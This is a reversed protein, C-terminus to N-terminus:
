EALPPNSNVTEPPVLKKLGAIVRSADKVTLWEIHDIGTTHKIFKDLSAMSKSRAREIWMAKIKRLQADTARGRRYKDPSKGNALANMLSILNKANKENLNKSSTVGYSSLLRRYDEDDLGLKRKLVHIAQIQKVSPM